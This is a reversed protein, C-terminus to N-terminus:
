AQRRCASRGPPTHSIRLSLISGAQALYDIGAAVLAPADAVRGFGDALTGVKLAGFYRNNRMQKITVVM